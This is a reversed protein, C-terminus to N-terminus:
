GQWDLYGQVHLDRPNSYADLDSVNKSDRFVKLLAVQVMKAQGTLLNTPDLQFSGHGLLHGRVIISPDQRALRDAYYSATAELVQADVDIQLRKIPNGTPDDVIRATLGKVEDIASQWRKLVEFELRQIEAHDRQAWAKLAAIAGAISEKGIKMGRGIGMNQMYAAHILNRRGAVIGPTPGGLFKHGSYIAADAGAAVFGRLDCESAADVIAPVDQAHCIQVFRALPVQGHEVAHHSVVYVAAAVDPGLAAELQRDAVQTAQGVSRVDAGTLEIALSLPAGYHCLHGLQVAVVSKLGPTKPLAEIRTPDAGTIAAAVALTIGASASATLFGAEAGTAEAIVRSAHAQMDHILAFRGMAADVETRIAPSVISSGLSTMTGSVNIIPRYGHREHWDFLTRDNTEAM